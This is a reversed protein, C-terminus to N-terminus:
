SSVRVGTTPRQLRLRDDGRTPMIARRERARARLNGWRVSQAIREIEEATRKRWGITSMHKMKCEPGCPDFYNGAMVYQRPRNSWFEWALDLASKITFGFFLAILIDMM